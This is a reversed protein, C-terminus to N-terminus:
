NVVEVIVDFSGSEVPEPESEVDFDYVPDCRLRLMGSEYYMDLVSYDDKCLESYKYIDMFAFKKGYKYGFAGVVSGVIVLLLIM